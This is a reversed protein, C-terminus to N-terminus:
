RVAGAMREVAETLVSPAAAFNLRVFGEGGAGFSEGGTLAVRGRELFVTAPDPELRLARCDLWAFYTAEPPAFGVEPLHRALLGRLQERNELLGALHAALWPGSSRFAAAHAITGLGGAGHRAVEPLTDLEDRAATGAVVLGAKLGAISWAKAASTVVFGSEGGPVTLYPTVPHGPHSLPAHIEDVVVRVRYRDALEALRTLEDYTHVTGTPNHPSCLLLAARGGEYTSRDFAEELTGFDLRHDASLQAPVVIRGCHAISMAFPGWVPPTIIVPGGPDTILQLVEAIGTMVDAVTLIATPDLNWEWQAAAFEAFAEPYDTGCPYGTDGNRLAEQLVAVIPEAPVADMEAVWLPLVDPEYSHWKLSRRARMAQEGYAAFPNTSLQSPSPPSSDPM